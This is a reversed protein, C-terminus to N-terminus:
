CRFPRREWDGTVGSLVFHIRPQQRRLETGLHVRDHSADISALGQSATLKLLSWTAPQNSRLHDIRSEPRAM